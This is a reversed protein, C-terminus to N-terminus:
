RPRRRRITGPPSWANDPRPCRRQPGTRREARQGELDGAGVEGVSRVDRAPPGDTCAARRPRDPGILDGPDAARAVHALDAPERVEVPIQHIVQFGFRAYLPVNREKSSELYAPEGAEDIQTLMARLLASGVGQGQREPATGLTFLYWHPETPHLGEVTFLLKLASITHPSLLFPATPLLQLLELVPHRVRGPPGWLAAGSLDETVYVHGHPLYNHRLESTFFSHLGVTDAAHGPSCSIRCRTTTLRGCWCTPSPHFTRRPPLVFPQPHRSPDGSRPITAAPRGEQQQYVPRPHGTLISTCRLLLATPGRCFWTLTASIPYPTPPASKWAGNM